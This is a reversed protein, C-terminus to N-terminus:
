AAIVAATAASIAVTSGRANTATVRRKITKGVDGVVPTYTAGTAGSIAADNALWQVAFTPSGASSWGGNGGTLVQGVQATGTITPLSTNIPARNVQAALFRAVPTVVGKEALKRADLNLAQLGQVFVGAALFGAEYLRRVNGTGTLIQKQLEAALPPSVGFEVLSRSISM